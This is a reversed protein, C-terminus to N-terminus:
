GKKKKAGRGAWFGWGGSGLLFGFDYFGGNNNVAYISVDDMFLSSIFSIPTIFGHILGSFFGYREGELCGQVPETGACSFLGFALFLFLVSFFFKSNKMDQNKRFIAQRNGNVFFIPCTGGQMGYIKSFGKRKGKPGFKMFHFM